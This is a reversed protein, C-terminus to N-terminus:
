KGARAVAVLRAADLGYPAGALDGFLDVQQFGSQLLRDKLERGSYITHEFRHHRVAGDKILTWDNRIRTWDDRVQPRQILVSGDALDTCISDKWVRALREKSIVDIVFAGGPKLSERVNRLVLLDEEPDDFYGFSTFLNCVLDFSAPRRFDRMDEEVFEVPVGAAGARERAKALLYASRDVGTVKWGRRALAVCHRGPGCCLDLVAGGHTGALALVQAAQEDAIAVREESFMFPYFDRWFTDDTYWSM